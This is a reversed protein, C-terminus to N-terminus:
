NFGQNLPAIRSCVFCLVFIPGRLRGSRTQAGRAIGSSTPPAVTMAEMGHNRAHM